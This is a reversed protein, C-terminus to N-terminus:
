TGFALKAVWGVSVVLLLALIVFTLLLRQARQDDTMM